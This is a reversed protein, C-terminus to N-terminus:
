CKGRACPSNFIFYGLFAGTTTSKFIEQWSVFEVYQGEKYYYYLFSLLAGIIIALATKQSHKSKLTRKVWSEKHELELKKFKMEM